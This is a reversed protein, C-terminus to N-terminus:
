CAHINVDWGQGQHYTLDFGIGSITGSYRDSHRVNGPQWTIAELQRFVHGGCEESCSNILNISSLRLALEAAARSDPAVPLLPPTQGAATRAAALDATFQEAAQSGHGLCRLVERAQPGNIPLVGEDQAHRLAGALAAVRSELDSYALLVPQMLGAPMGPPIAAAVPTLDIAEIAAITAKSFHISTTTIDGNVLAAAYRIRADARAAATFFAALRASASPPTSAPGTSAPGTSAPSTSAPGTSAPATSSVAPQSPTAGRGGPPVGARGCGALAAGAATLLALCRITRRISARM